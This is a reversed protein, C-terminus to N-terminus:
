KAVVVTITRSLEEGYSMHAGNAFQLTLTHEGPSLTLEAETEGGGFHINKEDKPVVTGKEEFSGDIIIHHHGTGLLMEGAPKVEMGELGMVVKFTSPVIQGDSLNVFFVASGAPYELFTEDSKADSGHDHGAHEDVVTSDIMAEDTVSEVEPSGCSALFLAMASFIILNLKRMKM